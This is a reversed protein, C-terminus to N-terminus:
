HVRLAHHERRISPQCSPTRPSKFFGSRAPSQDPRRERSRGHLRECEGKFAEAANAVAQTEVFVREVEFARGITGLQDGDGAGVAAALGRDHVAERRENPEWTSRRRCPRAPEGVVVVHVQGLADLIQSPRVFAPAVARLHDNAEITSALGFREQM